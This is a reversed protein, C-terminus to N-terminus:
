ILEVRSRVLGPFSSHHEVAVWCSLVTLRCGRGTDGCVVWPWVVERFQRLFPGNGVLPVIQEREEEEGRRGGGRGWKRKGM